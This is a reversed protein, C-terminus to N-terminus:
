IGKGSPATREDHSLPGKPLRGDVDTFGYVDALERATRAQGTYRM